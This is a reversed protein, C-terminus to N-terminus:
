GFSYGFRAVDESYISGVLDVLAPTYFTRYDVKVGSRNSKSIPPLQPAKQRLIDCFSDLDEYRGLEDVILNRQEDCVFDSQVKFVLDLKRLDRGALWETVFRDFTEFEPIRYQESGWAAVPAPGGIGGGRKVFRYASVLRDWPNRTVAVFPLSRVSSSGWRKIDAARLNGLFRGYLAESFSTGATKPIHILVVGARLWARSRQKVLFAQGAPTWRLYDMWLRNRMPKGPEYKCDAFRGSSRHVVRVDDNDIRRTRGLDLLTFKPDPRQLDRLQAPFLLRRSM